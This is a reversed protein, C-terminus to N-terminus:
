SEAISSVVGPLLLDQAHAANWFPAEQSIDDKCFGQWWLSLAVGSGGLKSALCLRILVDLIMFVWEEKIKRNVYGNGHSGLYKGRRIVM